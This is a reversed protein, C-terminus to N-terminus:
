IMKQLLKQVHGSRTRPNANAMFIFKLCGEFGSLDINETDIQLGRDWISVKGNKYEEIEEQMELSGCFKKNSNDWIRVFGHKNKPNVYTDFTFHDNNFNGNQVDKWLKDYEEFKSPSCVLAFSM